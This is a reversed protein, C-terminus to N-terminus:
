DVNNIRQVPQVSYTVSSVCVSGVQGMDKPCTTVTQVSIPRTTTGSTTPSLSPPTTTTFVTTTVEVCAIIGM